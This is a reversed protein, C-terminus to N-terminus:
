NLIDFIYDPELGLESAIIDEADFSSSAAAIIQERVDDVLAIADAESMGDRAMLIEVVRNRPVPHKCLGIEQPTVVEAVEKYYARVCATNDFPRQSSIQLLACNDSCYLAGEVAHIYKVKSLDQGCRLCKTM